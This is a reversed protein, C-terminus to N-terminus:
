GHIITCKGALSTANIVVLGTLSIGLLGVFTKLLKAPQSLAALVTNGLLNFTEDVVQVVICGNDDCDDGGDDGSGENKRFHNNNDDGDDDDEEDGGEDGGDDSEKGDPSVSFLVRKIM